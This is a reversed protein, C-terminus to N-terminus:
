KRDLLSTIMAELVDENSGDTRINRFVIRGEKDILFNVPAANRNDLNGKNRGEYDELPIFTYGSSKM